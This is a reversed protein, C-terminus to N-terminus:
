ININFSSCSYDFKGRAVISRGGGGGGGGGGGEGGSGGVIKEIFKGFRKWCKM